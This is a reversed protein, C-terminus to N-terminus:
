RWGSGAGGTRKRWELEYLKASIHFEYQSMLRCWIYGPMGDLFGLRLFYIIFFKLAPRFPLHVWIRKLFRKREVPDGFLSAKLGGEGAALNGYAIAEWNSYGNLRQILRYIDRCDEHLLDYKMFGSAGNLLVHEHVENDGTNQAGEAVLKEYRGLRHRFLRMNWSPYWGAHKIWRGLFILKRNLYFGDLKSGDIGAGDSAITQRIEEILEPTCREDADIILVWENRFPLNELAWNKKKPWVGNFEFQVLSAGHEAAIKATADTSSSDVVFVEDAWVISALCGPLNQEENKVPVFVSVPVKM